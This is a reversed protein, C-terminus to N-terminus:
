IAMRTAEGATFLVLEIIGHQKLMAKLQTFELEFHELKHADSGLTFKTGGLSKWLEIAYEYLPLNDRLIISKANVELALDHAIANKFVKTLMPEAIKQYEAVSIDRIRFGYEFHALVNAQPVNNIAEDLLNYYESALQELSLELAQEEMYYYQKNAHVGLLVIDYAKDALYTQIRKAQGFSYGVEIVKRMPRQYKAALQGMTVSYAAYDLLTDQGGELPNDLDFHETTVIPKTTAEFYNELAEASDFSFNSHMHQDYYNAM